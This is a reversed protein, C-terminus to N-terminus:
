NSLQCDILKINFKSLNKKYIGMNRMRKYLLNNKQMIIKCNQEFNFLVPVIVIICPLNHNHFLEYETIQVLNITQNTM